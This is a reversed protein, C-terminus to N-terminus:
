GLLGQVVRFATWALCIWWAVTLLLGFGLVALPFGGRRLEDVVARFSSGDRDPVEDPGITESRFVLGGSKSM